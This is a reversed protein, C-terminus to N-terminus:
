EFIPGPTSGGPVAFSVRDNGSLASKLKGALKNAVNMVLMERDAYEIFNM